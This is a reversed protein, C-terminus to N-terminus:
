QSMSVASTLTLLQELDARIVGTAILRYCTPYAKARVELDEFASQMLRGLSTPGCELHRRIEVEGFGSGTREVYRLLFKVNRLYPTRIESERYVKWAWGRRGAYLEAARWKLENEEENETRPLARSPADQADEDDKRDPKIECLVSPAMAGGRSKYHVLVDPTYKRRKGSEDTWTVVVPQHEFDRVQQNFRLLFFFDEELSSEFMQEDPASGTVKVPSATIKRTVM